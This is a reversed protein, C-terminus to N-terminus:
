RLPSAREHLWQQPLFDILIVYEPAVNTAKPVLRFIRMRWIKMRPREPEAINTWVIDYVTRNEVCFFFNCYM